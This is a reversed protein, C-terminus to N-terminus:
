SARKQDNGVETLAKIFALAPLASRRFRELTPGQAIRAFEQPTMQCDAITTVANTIAQAKLLPDQNATRERQRQAMERERERLTKVGTRAIERQVDPEQDAARRAAAISIVGSDMAEVLEPEAKETVHKAQRFTEHNGFGAKQAAIDRTKGTPLPAIKQVKTSPRGQRGSLEKAIEQAIAVRESPTFDLRVENEANEGIVIKPMDVVRADIETWGLIDRCARLRREGFVLRNDATIGVPQLLGLTKISEALESLNGMDKRHRKGVEIQTVPVKM